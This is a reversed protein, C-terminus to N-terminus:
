EVHPKLELETVYDFIMQERHQHHQKELFWMGSPEDQWIRAESAEFYIKFDYEGDALHVDIVFKTEQAM